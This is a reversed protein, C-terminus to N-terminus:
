FVQMTLSLVCVCACLCVYVCVLSHRVVVLKFRVSAIFGKILSETARELCQVDVRWLVAAKNGLKILTHTNPPTPVFRTARGEKQLTLTQTEVTEM